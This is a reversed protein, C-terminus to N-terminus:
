AVLSFLGKQIIFISGLVLLFKPLIVFLSGYLMLGIILDAGSAIDGMLVFLGKIMMIIAIPILLISLKIHISLLFLLIGAIIDFIGLIKVIM